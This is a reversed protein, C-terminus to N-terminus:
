IGVPLIISLVPISTSAGVSELTHRLSDLFFNAYKFYCLVGLNGVISLLMLGRRKWPVDTFQMGRAIFYDCVTTLFILRALQANWSAYFYYSAALLLWVRPRRWPLAWYVAFVILFFFLFKQTCFLM